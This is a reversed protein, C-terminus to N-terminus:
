QALGPDIFWKRWGQMIQHQRERILSQAQARNPLDFYVCTHAWPGRYEGFVPCRSKSWFPCDKCTKSQWPFGSQQGLSEETKYFGADYGLKLRHIWGDM